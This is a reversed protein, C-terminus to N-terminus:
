VEALWQGAGLHAPPPFSNTNCYSFNPLDLMPLPSAERLFSPKGAQTAIVDPLSLRTSGACSVASGQLGQTQV